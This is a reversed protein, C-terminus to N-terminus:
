RGKEEYYDHWNKIIELRALQALAVAAQLDDHQIIEEFTYAGHNKEVFGLVDLVKREGVYMKFWPSDEDEVDRVKVPHSKLLPYGIFSPWLRTSRESYNTGLEHRREWFATGPYVQTFQGLGGRTSNVVMGKILDKPRHGHEKLFRGTLNMSKLTDGPLFTMTLWYITVKSDLLREVSQEKSLVDPDASELGVENCINGSELLWDEGYKECVRSLSLTDTLSIWRFDKGTMYDVIREANKNNFFNEDTFHLDWQRDRAMDLLRRTQEWSATGYPYNSTSVYCYPCARKCGVSLFMPVVQRDREGSKVHHDNDIRLGYKFDDFYELYSFVGKLIDEKSIQFYPLRCWDIMPKLGIFSVLCGARILEQYAQLAFDIQPFTSLDILYRCSLRDRRYLLEDFARVTVDEWLEVDGAGEEMLFAYIWYPMFAASSLVRETTAPQIVIYRM